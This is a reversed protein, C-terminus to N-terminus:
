ALASRSRAILSSFRETSSSRRLGPATGTKVSLLRAFSTCVERALTFAASAPYSAADKFRSNVVTVAGVSPKM